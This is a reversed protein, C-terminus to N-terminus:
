NNEKPPEPLPAWHTPKTWMKLYNEETVDSKIYWGESCYYCDDQEDYEEERYYDLALITKAPWHCAIALQFRDRLDKYAVLIDTSSPATEIPQWNM